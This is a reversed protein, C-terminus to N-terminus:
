STVEPEPDRVLSCDDWLKVPAMTHTHIHTHIQKWVREHSEQCSIGSRQVHAERYPLKYCPPHCGEAHTLLLSLPQVGLISATTKKHGLRPTVDWKKQWIPNMLLSNILWTWMWPTSIVCPCSYWSIPIVPPSRLSQREYGTLMLDSIDKILM